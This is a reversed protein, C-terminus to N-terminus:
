FTSRTDDKKSKQNPVSTIKLLPLAGFSTPLRGSFDHLKDVDKIGNKENGIRILM